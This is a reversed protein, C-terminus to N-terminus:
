SVDNTKEDRATETFAKALSPQLSAGLICTALVVVAELVRTFAASVFCLPAGPSLVWRLPPTCGIAMAALISVTNRDLISRISERWSSRTESPRAAGLLYRQGFSFFCCFWVGTYVAIVGRAASFGAAPDGRTRSWNKLVSEMLVFPLAACNPFACCVVGM